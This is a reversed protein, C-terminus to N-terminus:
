EDLKKNIDEISELLWVGLHGEVSVRLNIVELDSHNDVFNLYGILDKSEDVIINGNIDLVIVCAGAVSNIDGLTVKM